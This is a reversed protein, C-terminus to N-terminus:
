PARNTKSGPDADSVVNGSQTDGTGVGSGLFPVGLLNGQSELALTSEKCTALRHCAAWFPTENSKEVGDSAATSKTTLDVQSFLSNEGM